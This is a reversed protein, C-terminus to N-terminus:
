VLRLVLTWTCPQGGVEGDIEIRSLRTQTNAQINTASVLSSTRKESQSNIERLLAKQCTIDHIKAKEKKFEIQTKRHEKEVHENERQKRTKRGPADVQQGKFVSDDGSDNVDEMVQDIELVSFIYGLLM